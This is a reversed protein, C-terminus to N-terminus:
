AAPPGKEDMWFVEWHHGDLDSFGHQLMFGHDKPQTPTTAGQAVAQAVIRGVEDRSDCQLALLVQTSAHADAVPLPTFGEFFPRTLLMCSIHENIVLCAAHDGSFQPNFSFGLAGFFAQTRPLDSVPLNVFLSRIM